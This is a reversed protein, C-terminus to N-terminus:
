VNKEAHICLFTYEPSPTHTSHVQKSEITLLHRTPLKYRKGEIIIEANGNLLYLLEIEDHWHIPHYGGPATQWAFSIGLPSTKQITEYFPQSM